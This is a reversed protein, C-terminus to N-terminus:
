RLFAAKRDLKGPGSRTGDSYVFGHQVLEDGDSYSGVIQGSDNISIAYTSTAGPVDLKKFRYSTVAQTDTTAWAFFSLLSLAFGMLLMARPYLCLHHSM